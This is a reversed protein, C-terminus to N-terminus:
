HKNIIDYRGNLSYGPPPMSETASISEITSTMNKASIKNFKWVVNTPGPPSTYTEKGHPVSCTLFM